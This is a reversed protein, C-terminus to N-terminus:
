TQAPEARRGSTRLGSRGSSSIEQRALTSRRALEPTGQRLALAGAEGLLRLAEARHSCGIQALALAKLRMTEPAYIWEGHTEGADAVPAILELAVDPKRARIAIDAALCHALVSARGAGTHHYKELADDMAALGRSPDRRGGDWAIILSARAVWYTHGHERAIALSARALSAAVGPEDLHVAALSLVGLVNASTHPHAIDGALELARARTRRSVELDGALAQASALHALAVAGPDSVYRVRLGGHLAPEYIEAAHSLLEVAEAVRGSLMRATGHMRLALLLVDDRQSERADELLRGSMSVAERVNGRVLHIAVLGWGIDFGLDAPRAPMADILQLAREYAAVTERSANGRLAGLHAGLRSLLEAEEVADCADPEEGKAALAQTLHAVATAPTGNAAAMEAAIRWWKFAHKHDAAKRFHHAVAEPHSHAEAQFATTLAMAAQSHLQKRRGKLVSGYAQSWMLARAFRYVEPRGPEARELIGLTVLMELRDGLARADMQLIMALVRCDFRRGLVAAAQALPKLASLADLRSTLAANLANPKSLLRHHMERDPAEACLRALELAYLPIGDAHEAIRRRMDPALATGAPTRSLTREIEGVTLHRVLFAEGIAECGVGAIEERAPRRTTLFMVGQHAEIGQALQRLVIMSEPDCWQLDEVVVLLPRTATMDAIASRLVATAHYTDPKGSGKGVMDVGPQHLYLSSCQARAGKGTGVPVAPEGGASVLNGLEKMLRRVSAIPRAQTEHLCQVIVAHGGSDRVHHDIRAVLASKGVGSDGELCLARSSGSQCAKWHQTLTAIERIRGILEHTDHTLRTAAPWRRRLVNWCRPKDGALPVVGIEFAAGILQRVTESVRVSCPEADLQLATAMAHMEGVIGMGAAQEDTEPTIAIGADVGCRARDAPEGAIALAAAVALRTDAECSLPWGWTAIQLDPDVRSVTGCYRAVVREVMIRRRALTEVIEEPDAVALPAFGIALVVVQRREARGTSRGIWSLDFDAEFRRERLASSKDPVQRDGTDRFPMTM